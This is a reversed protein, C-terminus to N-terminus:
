QSETKYVWTFGGRVLHNFFKVFHKSFYCGNYLFKFHRNKLLMKDKQFVILKSVATKQKPYEIEGSFKFIM